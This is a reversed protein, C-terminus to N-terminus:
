RQQHERAGRLQEYAKSWSSFRSVKSAIIWLDGWPLRPPALELAQRLLPIDVDPGDPSEGRPMRELISELECPGNGELHMLMTDRYQQRERDLDEFSQTRESLTLCEETWFEEVFARWNSCTALCQEVLDQEQGVAHGALYKVVLCENVEPPTACAVVCKIGLKEWEGAWSRLSGHNEMPPANFCRDLHIHLEGLM